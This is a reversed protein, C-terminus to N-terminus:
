APSPCPRRMCMIRHARAQRRSRDGKRGCIRCHGGRDRGLMAYIPDGKTLTHVRRGCIEVVGSVDRGLTIPLQDKRGGGYQGSRIKYDVPNVSTAHVKLVVEDDHPEPFAVDDLSLVEPGGYDHIRIARMTAM